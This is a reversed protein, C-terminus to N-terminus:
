SRNVSPSAADSTLFVRLLHKEAQQIFTKIATVDHALSVFSCEFPSPALYIGDDLMGHFFSQYRDTDIDSTDEVSLVAGRRFFVSFMSGVRQLTCPLHNRDIFASLHDEMQQGRSELTAYASEDLLDLTAIGAAVAVPNGSLTGAQYVAGSPAIKEMIHRPGAYAGIPFGGGIVKGFTVLDPDIGFRDIAGGRAIRFGTMVEDFILLSGNDSCINRLDELFSGAPPICGANGGVPEVIVCAIEDRYAEFLASVSEADNFRAILTDGAVSAPVGPSDPEGIDLMGSGAAILFCDAHGHYCGNFKIIRERGTYARALRVASMTAETGSNVLRIMEIGPVREIIMEALCTEGRTPAGFSFGKRLTSEVAAVVHPNAHGAILPGWSGVFDIYDNGDEDSICSGSGERIYVPTGGVGRFARVPSNVGGPLVRQAEKFLTDSTPRLVSTTTFTEQSM